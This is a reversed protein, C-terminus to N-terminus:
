WSVMNKSNLPWLTPSPKPSTLFDPYIRHMMLAANNVLLDIRKWEKKVWSVADGVSEESRVDMPLAYAKLGKRAFDNVANDLKKGPRSVMAVTAGKNLLARAMSYGLGSSAGTIVAYVDDLTIDM